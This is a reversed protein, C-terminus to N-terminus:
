DPDPIPEGPMLVFDQFLLKQHCSPAISSVLGGWRKEDAIQLNVIEVVRPDAASIPVPVPDLLAAIEELRDVVETDPM